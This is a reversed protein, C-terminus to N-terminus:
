GAAGVAADTRCPRVLMVADDEPAQYYGARVGVREFGEKLYFAIAGDNRSRVELQMFPCGSKAASALARSLLAHAVGRRRANPATAIQVLSAAEDSEWWGIYGLLAGEEDLAVEYRARPNCRLELAFALPTWPDSFSSMQIDMVAGIDGEEMRRMRFSAGHCPDKPDKADDVQMETAEGFVPGSFAFGEKGGQPKRGIAVFTVNCFYYEDREFLSGWAEVLSRIEQATKGDVCSPVNRRFYVCREFLARRESLGKGATDVTFTRVRVDAFGARRLYALCKRGNRRDTVRTHETNPRVYQDYLSFLREMVGEPDPYSLKAGDDTTKVIVFGGPALLRAAKDLAAQPDALHQLVHSFYVVDFREEGPDYEEFGVNLFEFRADDTRSRAEDIATAEPDIGVVRAVQPYPAFKLVTNFGDFCGVDLIRAGEWCVLGIAEFAAYDEAASAFAQKDIQAKGWTM